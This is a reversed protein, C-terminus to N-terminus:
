VTGVVKMVQFNGPQFPTIVERGDVVSGGAMQADLVIRIDWEYGDTKINQTDENVFAMMFTHEDLPEMVKQMIVSGGNKRRITFVARDKGTLSVGDVSFRLIGTDGASIMITRGGAKFM